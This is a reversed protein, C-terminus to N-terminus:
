NKDESLQLSWLHEYKGNKELLEAHTGEEVICGNDMVLIMDADVVTSLRHAIVLTTHKQSINRLSQLITQESKSDLSSTAEDFVMIGPQSIIVRAIAVRQKEGGSLKLGREGVITQYGDPLSVIFEHINAVKAAEYVEEETADQKAYLINNYITDNFLVTDQPVIGIADRLSKQTVNQINQGDILVTGDAVDYFRFLLRTITSKGAGSAGVIAVKHGAPVKFSISKLIQRDEQYSFSVNRFEIDANTVKLETANAKDKIEPDRDLLKIMLDMDALSYKLARYIIGLFGLPMFLQLMMTNVLVLDGLSMSGDVVGQAAYIMVFTVGVTIVAGQVFNLLSMSNQSKVAANEWDTMTGEYRKIEHNENTFYKVTEYNILGDVAQSNAESDLRNMTHRFHMRWETIALTFAIYVAVTVTTVLTFKWDYQSLLIIAVLIFEALTPVINFVLYNMISSLSQTGRELDRSIGGTKRELHFRLSLQYLRSLVQMSLKKIAGYRVRAFVADRLENFLGSVLRLAGYSLLLTIPLLVAMEGNVQDLADVIEKLVLPMGVVAFKSVVLFLLAAMTRSKYDWLFPLMRKINRIDTRSKHPTDIPKTDIM